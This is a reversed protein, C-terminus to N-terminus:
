TVVPPFHYCTDPTPPHIYDGGLLDIGGSWHLNVKDPEEIHNLLIHVGQQRCTEVIKEIVPTDAMLLKRSISIYRSGMAAPIKLATPHHSFDDIMTNIELEHLGNICHHSQKLDQAMQALRFSIILGRTSVDDLDRQRDLWRTYQPNQLASVSQPIVLMAEPQEQHLQKLAHLGQHVMWRDLDASTGTVVALKALTRYAVPGTVSQLNCGLLFTKRTPFRIQLLPQYDAVLLNEDIAQKMLKLLKINQEPNADSM